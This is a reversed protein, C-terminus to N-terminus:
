LCEFSTAVQCKTAWDCIRDLDEQLLMCDTKSKIERYLAVDDAYLKLKSHKVVRHMDDIYLLFLLPGLVSGQPVGSRVSLWDSYTGNVVVWQLRHTLFSRIWELLRGDIGLRQLKILLHEHAVFDFAKAFDLFVCHVSNRLELCISWDHVASLLLSVTSCQARFGFQTYSLHDSKELADTLQKCIIREMVKVVISTLSIPRYRDGKKHVPIINASTWDKPLSGMSMSQNFLHCLSECIFVASRKILLLLTLLDPGCAKNPNLQFVDKTTFIVSQIIPSLDSFSKLSNLDSCDEDTFVSYFYRNFLDAKAHNDTIRVDGALLPPLSMRYRKVSNVWQWFKKAATRFCNSLTSAKNKADTRTKTHVLNSIYRYKAIANPSASLKMVKYLKHKKHILSITDHSFWHKVKRCHWKLKPVTQDITSLYLDKWMTWSLEIDGGYDILNWPIRSFISVFHDQDIKSYDYLYRPPTNAKSCLEVDIVFKVADHDTGPVGLLISANSLSTINIQM